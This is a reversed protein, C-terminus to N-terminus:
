SEEDLVKMAEAFCEVASEGRGTAQRYNMDVRYKIIWFWAGRRYFIELTIEDPIM